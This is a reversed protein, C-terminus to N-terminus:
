LLHQVGGPGLLKQMGGPGILHQEGGPGLNPHSHPHTHHHEPFRNEGGPGILHQEGGPGVNPIPQPKKANIFMYYLGLAFFLALILTISDM